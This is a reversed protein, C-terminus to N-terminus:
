KVGGVKRKIEDKFIKQLRFVVFFRMILVLIGFEGLYGNLIQNQNKIKQLFLFFTLIKIPVSLHNEIVQRKM